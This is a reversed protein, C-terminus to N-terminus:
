TGYKDNENNKSNLIAILTKMENTKKIKFIKDFTINFNEQM